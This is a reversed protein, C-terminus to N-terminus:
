DVEGTLRDVLDRICLALERYIEEFAKDTEGESMDRPLSGVDWTFGATHFPLTPCFNRFSGEVSVVVFYRDLDQPDEPLAKPEAQALDFGHAEMFSVLQANLADAPARGASDFHVQDPYLKRAIAEAMQSLGSNDDDVFLVKHVKKPKTEGSVLFITEECINKAQDWLRKLQNYIAFYAIRGRVDVGFDESMLQRYIRDMTHEAGGALGQTARAAEGNRALFATIAQGLIRTGDNAVMELDTALSGAPPSPLQLGERAIVVTYDGIRELQLNTRLTASIRRLHGASPLHLAIFAHCRADIKRYLTNVSEDALVTRFALEENGSLVSRIADAMGTQVRDALNALMEQIENLDKELREEYRSM